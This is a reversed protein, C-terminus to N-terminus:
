RLEQFRALFQRRATSSSVPKIKSALPIASIKLLTGSGSRMLDRYETVLLIDDAQCVEEPMPWALGFKKSVVRLLEEEMDQFAPFQKKVPRPLDGLYAEAADHLLGWMAFERDLIKSVRVCHEAVSYFSTCHGNFRTQLSLSHAIDTVDLDGQRCQAPNFKKGTYTLIWSM